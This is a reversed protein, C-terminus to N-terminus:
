QSEYRWSSDKKTPNILSPHRSAFFGTINWFWKVFLDLPSFWKTTAVSHIFSSFVQQCSLILAVERIAFSWANLENAIGGSNGPCEYLSDTFLIQFLNSQATWKLCIAPSFLRYFNSNFERSSCRFTTRYMFVMSESCM